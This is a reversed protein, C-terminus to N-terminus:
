TEASTISQHKKMQMYNKVGEKEKLVRFLIFRVTKLEGRSKFKLNIEFKNKLKLEYLKRKEEINLLLKQFKRTKSSLFEFFNCRIELSANKGWRM